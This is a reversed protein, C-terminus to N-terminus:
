MGGLIEVLVQRHDGRPRINPNGVWGARQTNHVAERDIGLSLNRLLLIVIVWSRGERWRCLVAQLRLDLAQEHGSRFYATLEVWLEGRWRSSTWQM